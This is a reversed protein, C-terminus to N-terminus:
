NFNNKRRKKEESSSEIKSKELDINWIDVPETSYVKLSFLFFFNLIVFLNKKNLLKLIKM